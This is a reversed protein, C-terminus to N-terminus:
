SPPRAPPRDFAAEFLSRRHVQNASWWTAYRDVITRRRAHREPFPLAALEELAQWLPVPDGVDILWGCGDAILPTWPTTDPVLVPCGVSLAEAIAHGFSESLTPLVMADSRRLLEGVQDPDVHGRVEVVVHPPLQDILEACKAWYARDELVGAVVIRTPVTLSRAARILLEFNKIPAMRALFCITLVANEPASPETPRVAPDTRLFMHQGPDRFFSAVSAAEEHGSAHWTVDLRRLMPRLAHRLLRKRRSKIALAADSLEGRPALLIQRRPVLGASMLALPWLTYQPSFMSNLYLVDIGADRARLRRWVAVWTARSSRRSIVVDSQARDVPDTEARTFPRDVGLDTDRTIIEIRSRTRDQEVIAAISRPAGGARMAPLYYQCPILVRPLSEARPAVTGADRRRDQLYDAEMRDTDMRDPAPVVM